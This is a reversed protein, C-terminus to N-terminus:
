FVLYEIVSNSVLYGESTLSIKKGDYNLYGAEVLGSIKPIIDSYEFKEGYIELGEKLRLRLMAYEKKECPNEDTVYINQFPSSIFNEIDPKVAFRKNEFCSHSSTGIGLYDECKWYKNNHVSQFGSKAFNSVEYQMFGRKELESVMFLYMDSVADDDPLSNLIDPTNFPTNEEIKLIYSSIHNIPLSSLNEITYKISDTTQGAVGIMMDCSINEFGINVADTITNVAKEATHTRGLTKLESPVLSQVGLSIRNIGIDYFAKLKQRNVTNPNVEITIEPNESMRFNNRVADLMKEICEAPILSPTGGGFYVTDVTNKSKSYYVLNRIVADTYKMVLEKSYGVSFFDCYPCKGACFPIHIYIGLNKM